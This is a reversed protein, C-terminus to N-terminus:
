QYKEKKPNVMQPPLANMLRWLQYWIRVTSLRVWATGQTGVRLDAGKPWPENPSEVVYAYYFGKEHSINEVKKVIGGFSGYEIKPWGSIQLAPWGYFLIRVPLGEKVLPMNFDSVKLLLAKQTVTPSFYLIKEGKKIYRDKDNKYLRVVYGDKQAVVETNKYRQIAISQNNIQQDLNKLQNNTSLLNNNLTKIKNNTDSAFKEKEDTTITINKKEIAINVDINQLEYKAKIYSNEVRDYQQKSEIGEKYLLATREFNAKNIELNKELSVKKFALSRIKEDTQIIKNDYVKLGNQLYEKLNQIQTKINQINQTTNRHQYELDQKIQELKTLYNPDLDVMKYLPEGKKVFQNESVYFKEIFGDVTAYMPYDRQTPDFAVVTGTGKVTQQWPLFLMGFLIFFIISTILWVRKVIPHLELDELAKFIYKDM